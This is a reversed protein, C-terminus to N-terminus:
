LERERRRRTYVQQYRRYRLFFDAPGPTIVLRLPTSPRIIAVNANRWKGASM